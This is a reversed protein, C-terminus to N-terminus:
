IPVANEHIATLRKGMQILPNEITYYAAISLLVTLSLSAAVKVALQLGHWHGFVFVFAPIHLLYIGYSYRAIHRALYVIWGTQLESFIPIAIGLGLCLCSDIAASWPDAPSMLRHGNVLLPELLFLSLVFFPWLIAPLRFGRQGASQRDMLKYAVMGAMFMPPFIVGDSHPIRMFTAIVALLTASLWIWFALYLNDYKRLVVFLLPLVLYMQMEWPLSWLSGTINGKSYGFFINQVLLFNSILGPWGISQLGVDPRDTLGTAQVLLITAWCLPYIRFARRILFNRGLHIHPARHMSLMLVLCTHVFFFMVGTFSMYGLLYSVRSSVVCDDSNVCTQFLHAAVVSIVALSRLLDLNSYNNTM